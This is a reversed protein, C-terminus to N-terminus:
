ILKLWENKDIYKIMYSNVVQLKVSTDTIEIPKKECEVTHGNYGDPVTITEM